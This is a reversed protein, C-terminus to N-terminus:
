LRERASGQWGEALFPLGVSRGQALVRLGANEFFQPLTLPDNLSRLYIERVSGIQLDVAM